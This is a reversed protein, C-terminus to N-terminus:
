RINGGLSRFFSSWSSGPFGLRLGRERASEVFPSKIGYKISQVGRPLMLRCILWAIPVAALAFLIGSMLVGGAADRSNGTGIAVILAGLVFACGLTVLRIQRLRNHISACNQCRPIPVIHQKWNETRFKTHFDSYMYAQANSWSNPHLEGCFWCGGAHNPAISGPVSTAM